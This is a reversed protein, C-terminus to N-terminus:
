TLDQTPPRASYSSPFPSNQNKEKVTNLLARLPGYPSLVAFLDWLVLLGLLIWTTWEQLSNLSYAQHRTRWGDADASFGYYSHSRRVMISSMLVLYAQQVYRPARWFIAAIGVVAFNYMAFTVTVWDVMIRFVQVM